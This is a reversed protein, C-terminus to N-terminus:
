EADASKQIDYKKIKAGAKLAELYDQFEQLGHAGALGSMMQALEPKALTANGPIVKSVAAVAYNVDVKIEGASLKGEAPAPLRFALQTLEPTPLPTRRDIGSLSKWEVKNAAGVEALTKGANLDKVIAEAVAKAKATAKDVALLSKVENSVEVLPRLKSPQYNRAHIWVVVGDELPIAQSNKGEKLDESFASSLVKRNAALGQGGARTFAETSQVALKFTTAPEKLDSAEYTAADLKELEAAFLEEAKTAKAEKELEPKLAAFSPMESKQIDLLKILHYGFQSRVPASVEGVKLTYMSKEFAPDFQGRGVMGLDGGSAVSGPDQSFEKALKGFDEGARVRKEVDQIKKLAEAEAAKSKVEILIHAAHRQESSGSAKERELYRAQLDDDSVQIQSLLDDRKLQIYDLAVREESTFRKPNADYYAKVEADTSTAGALYPAAPVLAVSVDRKQSGLAALRTAEAETAFGSGMVSGLLLRVSMMDKQKAMFSTPTEGQRGVLEAFQQPSFKGDVQFAPDQSIIKSLTADTVVFGSKRAQQILLENNILSELVSKRLLKGDILSADANPGMRAIIQRRQDEVAKEFERQTIEKGNVEAVLAKRGGFNTDFGTVVMVLLVFALFGILMIKAVPGKLMDRFAQM